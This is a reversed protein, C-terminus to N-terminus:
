VTAIRKFGDRSLVVKTARVAEGRARSACSSEGVVEFGLKKMVNLSAPNEMMAEASVRDHQTTNFLWDLAAAVAESMFGNGWFAKGLWYGIEPEGQLKRFFVAGIMEGSHDVFFTLEEGNPWEAEQSEVTQLFVRGDEESYPHPVRSLMKTVEYDSLMSVISELDDSSPMRLVLRKTRIPSVM